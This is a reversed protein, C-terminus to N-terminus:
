PQWLLDNPESEDEMEPVLLAARRIGCAAKVLEGHARKDTLFDWIFCFTARRERTHKLTNDAQSRPYLSWYKHSHVVKEGRFTSSPRPAKIQSTLVFSGAAAGGGGVPLPGRLYLCYRTRGGRKQKKTSIYIFYFLKPSVSHQLIVASRRKQYSNILHCCIIIQIWSRSNQDFWVHKIKDDRWCHTLLTCGFMCIMNALDRQHKTNGATVFFIRSSVLVKSFHDRYELVPFMFWSWRGRECTCVIPSLM